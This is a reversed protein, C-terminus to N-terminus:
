LLDQIRLDAFSTPFPDLIDGAPSLDINEVVTGLFDGSDGFAGEVYVIAVDESQIAGERIRRQLRLLINESHTEVIVQNTKKGTIAAEIMADALVSQAKPHLHLEPQEIYAFSRRGYGIGSKSAPFMAALVPVTQSIGTGVEDFGSTSKTALDNVYTASGRHPSGPLPFSSQGIQFRKDTMHGLWENIKRLSGDGFPKVKDTIRPIVPRIPDVFLAQALNSHTWLNVDSVLERLFRFKYKDEDPRKDIELSGLSLFGYAISPRILNIIAPWNLLEADPTAFIISEGFYEDGEEVLVPNADMMADLSSFLQAHNSGIAQLEFSHADFDAVMSFGQISFKEHIEPTFWFSYSVSYRNKGKTLNPTQKFAVEFSSIGKPFRKEGVVNGGLTIVLDGLPGNSGQGNAVSAYNSLKIQPGDFLFGNFNQDRDRITQSVLKLARAVSSKGSANPGFILTIPALRIRRRGEISQFNELGITHLM